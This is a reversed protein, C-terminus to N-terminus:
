SIKLRSPINFSPHIGAPRDVVYRKNSPAGRPPTNSWRLGCFIWLYKLFVTKGGGGSGSIITRRNRVIQDILDFDDIEADGCKFRLNEYISLLEIPRDSTIITKVLTCRDFTRKLYPEFAQSNSTFLARVKRGAASVVSDVLSKTLELFYQAAITNPDLPEM